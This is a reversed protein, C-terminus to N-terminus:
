IQNTAYKDNIQNYISNIKTSLLVMSPLDTSDLFGESMLKSVEWNSILPKEYVLCVIESPLVGHKRALIYEQIQSCYFNLRNQYFDELDFLHSKSNILALSNQGTRCMDRFIRYNANSFDILAYDPLNKKIMWSKPIAAALISVEYFCHAPIVEPSFKVNSLLFKINESIKKPGGIEQIFDIM